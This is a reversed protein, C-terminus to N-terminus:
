LDHVDYTTMVVSIPDTHDTHDLDHDTPDLGRDTRQTSVSSAKSGAAVDDRCVVAFGLATYAKERGLESM